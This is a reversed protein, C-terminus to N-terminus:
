DPGFHLEGVPEPKQSFPNREKFADFNLRNPCVAGAGLSQNGRATYFVTTL